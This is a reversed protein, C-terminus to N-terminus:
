PFLLSLMHSSVRKSKNEIKKLYYVTCFPERSKKKHRAETDDKASSGKSPVHGQLVVVRCWPLFGDWHWCPETSVERRGGPSLLPGLCMVAFSTVASPSPHLPVREFWALQLTALKASLPQLQCQYQMENTRDHSLPWDCLTSAPSSAAIHLRMGMGPASPVVPQVLSTPLSKGSTVKLGHVTHPNVVM